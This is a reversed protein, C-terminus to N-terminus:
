RIMFKLLKIDSILPIMNTYYDQPIINDFLYAMIWFVEEEELNLELFFACMFNMGQCYHTKPNRKALASLIRFM